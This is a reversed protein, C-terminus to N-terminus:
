SFYYVILKSAVSSNKSKCSSLLSSKSVNKKIQLLFLYFHLINSIKIHKLGIMSSLSYIKFFQQLFKPKSFFIKKKFIMLIQM